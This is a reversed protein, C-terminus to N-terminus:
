DVLYLNEFVIGELGTHPSIIYGAVSRTNGEYNHLHHWWDTVSLSPCVIDYVGTEEYHTASSRHVHGSFIFYNLVDAVNIKHKKADSLIRGQIERNRTTQSNKLYEGHLFGCLFRGIKKYKRDDIRNDVWVNNENRYRQELAMGISLSLIADHNGKITYMENRVGTSVMIDAINYMTLYSSMLVDFYSGYVQGAQSTGSSTSHHTNDVHFLDSGIISVIEQPKGISFLKNFINETAQAVEKEYGSPTFSNLDYPLKNMHIDTPAFVFTFESDNQVGNININFSQYEGVKEEIQRQLPHVITAKIEDFKKAKKQIEDWEKMRFKQYLKRRRNELVEEIMEDENGELIEKDLFPDSDHTWGLATKLKIFWKRPIGFDRCIENITSEEGDWNSYRRKLAKLDEGQITFPKKSNKRSLFFVYTDTTENHYYELNHIQIISNEYIEKDNLNEESFEKNDEVEYESIYDGEFIDFIVNNFTPDDEKFDNSVLSNVYNDFDEWDEIEISDEYLAKISKFRRKFRKRVANNTLDNGSLESWKLAVETWFDSYMNDNTNLSTFVYFIFYDKLSSLKKSM